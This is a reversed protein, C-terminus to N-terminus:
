HNTDYISIGGYNRGSNGGILLQKTKPNLAISEPNPLTNFAGTLTDTKEDIVLGTYGATFNQGYCLAYVAGNASDAVAELPNCGNPTPINTLISLTNADIVYVSGWKNSSNPTNFYDM